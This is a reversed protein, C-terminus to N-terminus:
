EKAEVIQGNELRIVTDCVAEIDDAHHSTLIILRGARRFELLLTRLTQVAKADLANFPEDLLLVDPEEMVAQIIGIKQKMGLSYRKVTQRSAPDLGFRRMYQAITEDPIKNQIQALLKLNDFGSLYPLYEPREILVGASPPLFGDQLLAKGDYTVEGSSPRILGALARLLMTKGSGNPGVIGYIVGSHFQCGVDTLVQTQNLKKCLSIVQIEM